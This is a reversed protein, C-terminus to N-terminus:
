KISILEGVRREFSFLILNRLSKVNRCDNSTLNDKKISPYVKSPVVLTSFILLVSNTRNNDMVELNLIIIMELISGILSFSFLTAESVELGELLCACSRRFRNSTSIPLSKSPIKSLLEMYVALLHYHVPRFQNKKEREKM